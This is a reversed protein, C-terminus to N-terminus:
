GKLHWGSEFRPRPKDQLVLRGEQLARTPIANRDIRGELTMALDRAFVLNGIHWSHNFTGYFKQKEPDLTNFYPGCDVDVSKPHPPTPLGVRGARPAVGLRKANSVGLVSDYPNSYNTLRMIRSYMPAAWASDAALSARSVDGAIFAVQGLRWTSKHLKGSKEANALADMIVYAGTSHGLAHVNTQCGAKQRKALLEIGDTVLLLSVESADWRDELYNLTSNGSPWEFTVVIGRWGEATLDQQLQRHRQLIIKSDNNYGHVFIVVDGSESIQGDARGDAADAVNAMWEDVKTEHDPSSAEAGRPVKLYRVKGPEASFEGGKIKRACLVYDVEPPSTATSM